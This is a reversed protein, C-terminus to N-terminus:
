RCGCGSTGAVTPTGSLLGAGSLSMGTPLSGSVISWSMPGAGQATLQRSYASGLYSLPVVRDTIQPVPGALGFVRLYRNPGGFSGGQDFVVKGAGFAVGTWDYMNDDWDFAKVETGDARKLAILDSAHEQTYIGTSTLWVLDGTVAM